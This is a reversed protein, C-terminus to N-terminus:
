PLIKYSPPKKKTLYETRTVLETILRTESAPSPPKFYNELRFDRMSVSVIDPFVDSTRVSFPSNKKRGGVRAFKAVPRVSVTKFGFRYRGDVTGDKSKACSRERVSRRNRFRRGSVTAPVDRRVPRSFPNPRRLSFVGRYPRDRCSLRQGTARAALRSTGLRACPAYVPVVHKM